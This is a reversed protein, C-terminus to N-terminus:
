YKILCSNLLVWDFFLKRKQNKKEFLFQNLNINYRKKLHYFIFYIFIDNINLPLKIEINKNDM